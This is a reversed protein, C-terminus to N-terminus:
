RCFKLSLAEQIFLKLDNIFINFLFPGLILGQQVGRLIELYSSFVTGIKVWQYILSLCDSILSTASDEFGYASLKTMPLDHPLSDYAKSLDMLVAGTVGSKDLTKQWNKLLNLLAHQTSHGKRFGCLKPSLIKKSFKEIQEFLVREFMLFVFLILHCFGTMKKLILIFCLNETDIFWIYHYYQKITQM